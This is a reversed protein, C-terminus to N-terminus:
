YNRLLLGIILLTHSNATLASSKTRRVEKKGNSKDGIKDPSTQMAPAVQLAVLIPLACVVDHLLQDPMLRILCARSPFAAPSPSCQAAAYRCSIIMLSCVSHSSVAPAKRNKEKRRVKLFFLFHIGCVTHACATEASFTKKKKLMSKGECYPTRM